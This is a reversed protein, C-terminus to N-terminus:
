YLSNKSFSLPEDAKTIQQVLSGFRGVNILWKQHPSNSREEPKSFSTGANTSWVQSSARLPPASMASVLNRQEEMKPVLWAIFDKKKFRLKSLSGIM